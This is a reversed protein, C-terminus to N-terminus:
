LLMGLERAFDLPDDVSLEGSLLSRCAEKRTEPESAEGYTCTRDIIREFLELNDRDDSM